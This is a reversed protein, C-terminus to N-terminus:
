SPRVITLAWVTFVIRRLVFFARFYFRTFRSRGTVVVALAIGVKTNLTRFAGNACLEAANTFAWLTPVASAHTHSLVDHGDTDRFASVKAFRTTNVSLTSITDTKFNGFALDTGSVAVGGRTTSSVLALFDHM